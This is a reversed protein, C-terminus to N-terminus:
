WKPKRQSPHRNEPRLLSPFLPKSFPSVFHFSKFTHVVDQLRYIAKRHYWWGCLQLAIRQNHVLMLYKRGSGLTKARSTM